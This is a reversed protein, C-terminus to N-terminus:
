SSKEGLLKVSIFGEQELLPYIGGGQILDLLSKPVPKARLSIGTDRNIVTWEELSVEAHQGEAFAEHVGPCELALFGFNVANRFFLGNISEAILCGLGLNRL